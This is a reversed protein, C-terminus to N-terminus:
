RNTKTTRFKKRNYRELRGEFANSFPRLHNTLAEAVIPASPPSQSQIASRQAFDWGLRRLGLRVLFGLGARCVRLRGSCRRVKPGDLPAAAPGLFSQRTMFIASAIIGAMMNLASSFWYQNDLKEQQFSHAARGIGYM